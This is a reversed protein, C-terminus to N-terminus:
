ISKTYESFFAFKLDMILINRLFRFYQPFGHVLSMKDLVFRPLSARIYARAESNLIETFRFNM